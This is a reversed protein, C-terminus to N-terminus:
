IRIDINNGVDLKNNEKKEERDRKKKDGKSESDNKYSSGKNKDDKINIKAQENKQTNNVRSLERKIKYELQVHTQQLQVKTKDNEIQRTKSLEQVKPVMTNYDVPRISM